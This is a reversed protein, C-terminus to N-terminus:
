AEVDGRVIEFGTHRGRGDPGEGWAGYIMRGNEAVYQDILTPNCNPGPTIKYKKVLTSWSVGYKM